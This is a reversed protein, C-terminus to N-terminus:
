RFCSLNSNVMKGIPLIATAPVFGYFTLGSLFIKNLEM